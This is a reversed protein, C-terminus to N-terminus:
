SHKMIIVVLRRCNQALWFLTRAGLLGSAKSIGRWPEWFLWRKIPEWTVIYGAYRLAVSMKFAQVYM